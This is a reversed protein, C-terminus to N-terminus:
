LVTGRSSYFNILNIIGKRRRRKLFSDKYYNFTLTIKHINIQRFFSVFSRLIASPEGFSQRHASLKFTRRELMGKSPATEPNRSAADCCGESHKSIDESRKSIDESHKSIDESRKSIDESRKSIDKSRKSIDESRKSIDESRRSIDESRKSIGESHRSIDESRRSLM